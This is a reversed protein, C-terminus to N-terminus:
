LDFICQDCLFCFARGKRLSLLQNEQSVKVVMWQWLWLEKAM